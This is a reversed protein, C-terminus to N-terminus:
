LFYRVPDSIVDAYSGHAKPLWQVLGGSQAAAGKPCNAAIFEEAKKLSRSGVAAVAHGIDGARRTSSPYCLDKVFMSSMGETLPRQFPLECGCGLIGWQAIFPQTM